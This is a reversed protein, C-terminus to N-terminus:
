GADGTWGLHRAEFFPVSGPEMTPVLLTRDLWHNFAECSTEPALMCAHCAAGNSDRWDRPAHHACLPDSSCRAMEHLASRLLDPLREESGLDVLGGLSGESDASATYILVGCMESGPEASPYLRERVSAGSYGCELALARMVAHAFGHLVVYRARTRLEVESLPKPAQAPQDDKTDLRQSAEHLATLRRRVTQSKAWADVADPILEFFLGEGRVEVGPLWEKDQRSIPSPAQENQSAGLLGGQPSMRTFGTLARVELMKHVRIVSAIRDALGAPVVGVETYFDSREGLSFKAPDRLAYWEPLLLDNKTASQKGRQREIANWLAAPDLGRFVPFFQMGLKLTELSTFTELSAASVEKLATGEPTAAEDISLASRMVGFWLNTAGRLVTQAKDAHGCEKEYVDSGLWPQRATCPGLVEHKKAGFVDSLGRRSGCECVVQLDAITGTQGRSTLKMRRLCTLSGKHVYQRWPFDDLHGGPCTVVFPAPNVRSKANGCATCRLEPRRKDRVFYREGPESLTSCTPNACVQYRPFLHAPVTGMRPYDDGEVPSPTLFYQVGLERQLRPEQIRIAGDTSWNDLGAVVVSVTQLDIIAGPGYTTIIQSPRVDGVSERNM